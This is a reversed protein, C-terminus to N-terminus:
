FPILLLSDALMTRAAKILTRNKRKAIGNQQLTRPVSLEKKIGKMGCFKNLDNNKFETGNDSRILKVKLSLQNELGTIFTKLISSTEDKTALFFVWTFRSYDYTVVLCYSRKNLSKVFTPGFLDMHLRYLYQDVSSVPKTKCSARHQKGKKCAVCTNDNEFVKTPLGRVLNGKILKNMSKFNIHGLRRQWLNSEDTTAKVFLCTLDGSPVINKLSVNYMNNEKPVRLLVKRSIKGGKPNGGFAVYGGNLEEFDFLYSMNRTMHRSCGSDIVGKDKLAHQPNGKIKPMAISVPRVDNIPVVNISVLMSQTLIKCMFCTKRNRRKGNSTPKPSASKPTAIPISTEVHQVSPRPSKVQDTSQVFSPVNQPSKTKSEDESDFVWDEIITALPQSTHSLDQDPKTPSLKVNFTPHNTDVNNPTNNFVLDPKPPMFKGTYPLPVAHYGNGSQYRDYIPSSPLSEDSGSSLYDDCDFMAHTFVQSNYGLSTKANTQIALLESLIENDSSSSLSSFAMLAYNTPNIEAQFSWDYSGVGDCQSVLANSTTTEVLVSRRQPEAAGSGNRRTDKPCRYERAFHGKIHCNYCEVKSMEFGMSTPGNAGLNRGTRQLFRRARILSDVNPLPSLPIKTSVVSVSAAASIPENTRDTNSSSVIAINQTSTSVSSSSKVEAEYIKLSNFLDDLSQEELDTKNRKIKPMATSVPRVDNIPVVNISVLMSQTLVAVHVVHRLPLPWVAMWLGGRRHYRSSFGSNNSHRRRHHSTNNATAAAMTTVTPPLPQQWPSPPPKRNHAAVFTAAPQQHHLHHNQAHPQQRCHHPSPPDASPPRATITTLCGHLLYHHRLNRRFRQRPPEPKNSTELFKNRNKSDDIECKLKEILSALLDRENALDDDVDQDVKQLPESDFIPGSNNAADLTVKQIQAMYMYHAELEHDDPEDDIDDRWDAQEANLQFGVEEQKCLLIKEKHYAVDKARKPKQCEKAVYGYEKCNYCQIMSQQVMPTGVNERARVVNVIRQNDYSTGRNIRPSNDQNARSTNSSTRLNNNTPKYIKKLSISILAMLKDIEKDKSMEDDEAVMTPEQDYIPPPSNVISQRPQQQAVLALPNATRALREARIENVENQHQKLIDYLKHYSVTKLEQSQKVLTVFRQWEPQLQLLFQVNVQHNTVDCQNRVLENMMKYFRSYCSELSEGDRSTFKGFECYLNTELDKVNISECQKLREIDKWMECANPCADVISYIDNDIGTLIIQITEAKANQQDRIDQTVNKYNDMYRETTTETSGPALVPPRDKGGAKMIANHLANTTQTQMTHNTNSM